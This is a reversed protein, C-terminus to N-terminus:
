PTGREQALELLKSATRNTPDLRLAEDLEHRAEARQNEKLLLTGVLVHAEAGGGATVAQRALSLAGVVDGADWAIRARKLTERASELPLRAPRPEAARKVEHIRPRPHIDRVVVAGQKSIGAATTKAPAAAPEAPQPTLSLKPQEVVESAVPALPPSSDSRSLRLAILGGIGVLVGALVAGVGFLVKRQRGAALAPLVEPDADTALVRKAAALDEELIKRETEVNFYRSLVGGVEPESQFGAPILRGLAEGIETASNWRLAPNLELARRVAAGVEPSLEPNVVCPDPLGVGSKTGIDEPQEGTLLRWLVVGLSFLDSRADAKKGEWVEPATYTERGIVIGASTLAAEGDARAIGFDILKVEGSWSLMVNDPTVDRHVIGQGHAYALARAVERGIHLAVLLPIRDPGVRGLLQALNAGDVFEQLLCLEGDIEEVGVTQAIAGHALRLAIHAERRFRAELEPTRESQQMRKVVCVKALEPPGKLALDVRGFGGAGSCRLLVYPGFRRFDQEIVGETQM